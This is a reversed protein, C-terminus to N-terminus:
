VVGILLSIPLGDSSIATLWFVSLTTEKPAPPHISVNSVCSSCVDGRCNLLIANPFNSVWTVVVGVAVGDGEGVGVAETDDDGESVGVGVCDIVSISELM